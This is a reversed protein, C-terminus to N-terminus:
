LHCGILQDQYFFEPIKEEACATVKCHSKMVAKSELTMRLYLTAVASESLIYLVKLNEKPCYDTTMKHKLLKLNFKSSERVHIKNKKLKKPGSVSQKTPCPGSHVQM